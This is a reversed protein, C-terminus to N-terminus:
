FVDFFFLVNVLYFDGPSSIFKTQNYHEKRVNITLWVLDSDKNADRNECSLFNREAWTKSRDTVLQGVMELDETHQTERRHQGRSAQREGESLQTGCSLRRGRAPHRALRELSLHGDGALSSLCATRSACAKTLAGTPRSRKACAANVSLSKWCSAM